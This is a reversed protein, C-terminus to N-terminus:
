LYSENMLNEQDGTKLYKTGVLKNIFKIGKCKERAKELFQKYYEKKNDFDLKNYILRNSEGIAIYESNKYRQVTLFGSEQPLKSGWNKKFESIIGKEFLIKLLDNHIKESYNEIYLDGNKTIVGRTMSGINELSRPNKILKWSGERYIIKDTTKDRFNTLKDEINFETAAFKDAVGEILSEKVLKIM